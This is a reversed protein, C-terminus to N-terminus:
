SGNARARAKRRKEAEIKKERFLTGEFTHIINHIASGIETETASRRSAITSLDALLLEMVEHFALKDAINEESVDMNMRLTAMRAEADHECQADDGGLDCHEFAVDWGKLGFYKIWFRCQAQFTRFDRATTKM